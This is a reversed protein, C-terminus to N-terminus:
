RRPTRAKPSAHSAASGSWIVSNNRGSAKAEYLAQDARTVMMPISDLNDALTAIGLSITFSLQIGELDFSSRALLLRLREAIALAQDENTDPMLLVFEEGGYRAFIDIDRINRRCVAAFMILAQDGIAHGHADNIRKFYDIDILALALPRHHRVARRLEHEALELFYRRNFLQTLMDTTALQQLENQAHKLETIDRWVILRGVFRKRRDYLPSIRLNLYHDPPVGITFETQTETVDKIQAVIEPWAAFVVSVPQGVPSIAFSGLIRQTVPNIDVVRNRADLVVVGDTMNEILVHRAIPVVDLLRYRLLAYAFIMASISFAFPTTDADPLPSFGAVFIISVIWPFGVAGLALAAQRRYLGSASIFFSVLLGCAILVLLYSYGINAWAVPGADIIMTTNQARTGAFFLGHWPDTWLLALVLLPELCLAAVTPWKLWHGRRTFQLVFALLATPVTVVGVYTIDLWFYPTPGPVGAWFLAYTIDWWCLGFMLALLSKAGAVARGQQWVVMAVVFSAIGAIM